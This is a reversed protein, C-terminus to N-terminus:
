ASLSKMWAALGESFESVPTNGKVPMKNKYRDGYFFAHPINDINRINILMRAYKTRWSLDITGDPVANIEPIDLEIRYEKALYSSYIRLFDSASDFLEKSILKAGEENWNDPLKLIESADELAVELNSKPEQFVIKIFPIEENYGGWEVSPTMPLAVGDKSSIIPEINGILTHVKNIAKHSYAKTVMLESSTFDNAYSHVAYVGEILNNPSYSESKNVWDTYHPKIKKLTTVM